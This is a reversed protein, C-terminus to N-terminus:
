VSADLQDREMQERETPRTIADEVEKDKMLKAQREKEQAQQLDPLYDGMNEIGANYGMVEVFKIAKEWSGMAEYIPVLVEIYFQKM